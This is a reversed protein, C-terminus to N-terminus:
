CNDPGASSRCARRTKMPERDKASSCWGRRSAARFWLRDPPAGEHLRCRKCDGIDELIKLLTDGDPALPILPVAAAHPPCVVCRSQNAPARNPAAKVPRVSAPAPEPVAPAASPQTPQRRYYTKIGLDQYFELRQRLEDKTMQGFRASRPPTEFGSRFDERRNRTQARAASSHDRGHAPVLIVENEDSEFGTGEQGVLNAVVMDCNKSELKRRAEEVLNETEAAFGILLRDGKKQGLEALIDPTPDLELSM